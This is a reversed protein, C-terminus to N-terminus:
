CDKYADLIRKIILSTSIGSVISVRVVKGGNAKVHDAGIIHEEAWDDGKVLVDPSVDEILNLPDPEDFFTIYDVCSLGSLVEARQMQSVIPRLEGKISKVSKDSNLGLILIDGEKKAAVLYRVHGAHLIDFCGNTFVIQKGAKKLRTIERVLEKRTLIKEM